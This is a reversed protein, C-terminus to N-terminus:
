IFKILQLLNDNINNNEEHIAVIESIAKLFPSFNERNEPLLDKISILIDNERYEPLIEFGNNKYFDLLNENDECEVLVVRGGISNQIDSIINLARHLIERGDIDDSYMDNKGLQGILYVIAEKADKSFGDIMKTKRNSLLDPLVLIKLSLSFYAVINITKNNEFQKQDIILYTRTIDSKEFRVSNYQLFNEVDQNRMCSFSSVADTVDALGSNASDSTLSM